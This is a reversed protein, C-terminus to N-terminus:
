AVFPPPAQSPPRLPWLTPLPAPATGISCRSPACRTAARPFVKSVAAPHDDQGGRDRKWEAGVGIAPSDAPTLEHAHAGTSPAGSVALKLHLHVGSAPLPDGGPHAHLLPAMGHLVALLAVVM